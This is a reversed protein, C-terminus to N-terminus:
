RVSITKTSETNAGSSVYGIAGPTKAVFEVLEQDSSFSLPAMGKGTFVQKKWYNDYQSASKRVYTKLFADGADTRDQVVFIIKDGNSWTTKNGLFIQKVDDSSLNSAPVNGNVIVVVEGALSLIPSLLVMFFIFAIIAKLKM